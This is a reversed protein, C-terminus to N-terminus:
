DSSSDDSSEQHRKRKKSRKTDKIAQKVMSMMEKKSYNKKEKPGKKAKKHLKAKVGDPDECEHTDLNKYLWEPANNRKCHACFKKQKKRGWGNANKSKKAISRNPKNEKQSSKKSMAATAMNCQVANLFATLTEVSHQFTSKGSLQLKTQWSM